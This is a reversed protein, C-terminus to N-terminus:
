AFSNFTAHSNNALAYPTFFQSTVSKPYLIFHPKQLLNCLHIPLSDAGYVFDAASILQVLKNFDSYAEVGIATSKYLAITVKDNLDIHKRKIKQVLQDPLNRKTIRASPLILINSNEKKAFQITPVQSKFFEQFSQYINEASGIANFQHSTGLELLWKHYDNDIFDNNQEGPYQNLFFRFIKLQKFTDLQFLYRNSFVNLMSKKIGFNVFQISLNAPIISAPLAEFLPLLHSSAIIQYKSLVASHILSQLAVIFDGYARLLFVRKM